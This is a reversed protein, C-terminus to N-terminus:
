NYWLGTTSLPIRGPILRGQRCGVELIICRITDEYLEVLTEDVFVKVVPFGQIVDSQDM